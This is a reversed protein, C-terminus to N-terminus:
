DSFYFRKVYMIFTQKMIIERVIEQEAPPSKSAIFSIRVGFGSSEFNIYSRFGIKPIGFLQELYTSTNRLTSSEWISFYIERVFFKMYDIDEINKITIRFKKKWYEQNGSVFETVINALDPILYKNLEKNM